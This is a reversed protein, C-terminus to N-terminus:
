NGLFFASEPVPEFCNNFPTMWHLHLFANNSYNIGYFRVKHMCNELYFTRTEELEGAGSFDMVTEDDIDMVFGGGCHVKFSYTGAQPIKLNSEFSVRLNNRDTVFFPSGFNWQNSMNFFTTEFIPFDDTTESGYVKATIGNDIPLDVKEGDYGKQFLYIDDVTALLGYDRKVEEIENQPLEFWKTSTDVLVYEVNGDIGFVDFRNCVHPFIDNQTYLSATSPILDIVDNIALHHSTVEPMRNYDDFIGLPTPSIFTMFVLGFVILLALVRKLNQETLSLQKLGYIASVFVFPILIWPYQYGLQYAPPYTSFFVIAWAPLSIALTSPSLFPLFQLPAFLLLAYMYKDEIQFLLQELPLELRLLSPFFKGTHIYVGGTNFYPVIIQISVLFWVASLVFLPLSFLLVRSKLKLSMVENRERWLAYLALMGTILAADERCLIAFVSFLTALSYRKEEIYHFAFLFFPVAIAAFHFDFRNIGHLAPYMLYLAAFALGVYPKFRKKCIWYIPLAGLALFFAQLVLLTEPTQCIAYLPLMAFLFLQVHHALTSTGLDSWLSIYLPRGHSTTWFAQAFFGLDGAGTQFAYHRLLSYWSFFAFYTLILMWLIYEPKIVHLRQLITDLLEKAKAMQMSWLNRIFM